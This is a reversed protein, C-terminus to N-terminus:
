LMGGGDGVMFGLVPLWNIEFVVFWFFWELFEYGGLSYYDATFNLKDFGRSALLWFTM